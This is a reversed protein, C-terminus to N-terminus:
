KKVPLNEDLDPTKGELMEKEWKDILPDEGIAKDEDEGLLRYLKRLRQSTNRREEQRMDPDELLTELGQVREYVDVYMESIWAHIPRSSFLPDNHPRNYKNSWWRRVELDGTEVIRKAQRKIRQIDTFRPRM